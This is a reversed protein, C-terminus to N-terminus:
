RPELGKEARAKNMRDADSSLREGLEDESITGAIHKEAKTGNYMIKKVPTVALVTRLPSDLIDYFAKEEHRRPVKITEHGRIAPITDVSGQAPVSIFYLM